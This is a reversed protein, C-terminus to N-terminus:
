ASDFVRGNAFDLVIRRERFFDVGLIWRAGAIGLLHGLAGPLIGWQADIERGGAIVPFRYVSTEFRGLMPYFDDVVGVPLHTNATEPDAYSLQAGSDLIAKVTRGQVSIDLLPVGLRLHVPIETGPIEMPAREFRIEGANWDLVVAWAGLIDTGILSSVEAGVEHSISPLLGALDDQTDGIELPQGTGFSVPSGTDILAFGNELEALFHNQEVRLKYIPM